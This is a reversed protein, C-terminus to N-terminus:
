PIKWRRAFAKNRPHDPAHGAYRVYLHENILSAWDNALVAAILEPRIESVGETHAFDLLTERQREDLQTLDLTPTRSRLVAKLEELTHSLGTRLHREAEAQSCGQAYLTEDWVRQRWGIRRGQPTSYPYFRGDARLGFTNGNAASQLYALFDDTFGRVAPPEGAEPPAKASPRGPVAPPDGTTRPAAEVIETSEATALALLPWRLREQRADEIEFVAEFRGAGDRLEPSFEYPYIDDQLEQWAGEGQRWSLRASIVKEPLAESYVFASTLGRGARLLMAHVKGFPLTAEAFSRAPLPPTMLDYLKAQLRPKVKSPIALAVLGKPPITVTMRQGTARLPTAPIGDRWVRLSQREDIEVLAPDLAVEMREERFSQNMLALYLQGNGHGAVWDLQRDDCAVLGRPLWLWVNEDGCFRGPKGGYIRVRFNSGAASLAPFDIAGHSREFADSVLFDLVAGAFDWAHGANVTAFNWDWPRHEVADPLEPVLSNQTRNDGPFNGFRGVMGSRAVDRLFGDQALGAARMMAGHTNMWYEIPYAIGPLGIRAIRWAPVTQEQTPLPQPPPYGWQNKHRGFSHYHVPVQGGRDVTIMTEPPAPYLNVKAANDYAAELAARADQSDGTADSLDLLDFFEEESFSASKGRLKTGLARAEDLAAADGTLRWRALADSLKGQAAGKTEALARLAPTRSQFLGDLTVLQAYSLYPAGVERGASNAQKNDANDYPAFVSTKRSLAYEVAPRARQRFFEEDDTAIAVSLGYLPSFPKFVGTKDTFYDYYKQQPDWLAHNGGRRDALFDVIRALTGNLSGPGSNDRQDRFGHLDRAIHAYTQKWDGAQVVCRFTFSWPESVAMKSEPGGLLPALLVPKLRGADNALMFGFRSDAMTPLRFRCERSDAVLAVNGSATAVQARPLHLDAESVVFDFQKHGRAMCEQPVALTDRLAAGPAGTFAVSYWAARKPTLTFTLAPDEAGEPLTLTATLAFNDRQAYNWRIMRGAIAGREPRLVTRQGVTFPRTTDFARDGTVRVKVKDQADRFEWERKKGDARVSGSLGTAAKMEPSALWTNLSELPEDPLRWRVATRPAVAYNPHTPDRKCRPDTESALVTFEPVFVAPPMGAVRMEVSQDPLLTLQYRANALPEAHANVLLVLACGVRQYRRDTVTARIWPLRAARRMAWLILSPRLGVSWVDTSTRM